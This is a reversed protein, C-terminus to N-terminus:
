EGSTDGNRDIVKQITTPLHGIYNQCKQASVTDWFELIGDILEQKTRVDSVHDKLENWLKEIPNLDPSEPPTPWWNIGENIMFNQTSRSTHKPDNDQQLRHHDPYTAQVFPLFKGRLISEQYFESRMIGDFVLIGTAGRKSIGAWIMVSYPHKPKPVKKAPEGAKHFTYRRRNQHSQVKCEDTFIVDQM